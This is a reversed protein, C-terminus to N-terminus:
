VVSGYPWSTDCLVEFRLDDLEVNECLTRRARWGVEAAMRRQIIDQLGKM